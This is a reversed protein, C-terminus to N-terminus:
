RSVSGSSRASRSAARSSAPRSPSDRGASRRRKSRRHAVIAPQSAAGGSVAPRTATGFIGLVGDTDASPADAGAPEGDSCVLLRVIDPISSASADRRDVRDRLGGAGAAGPARPLSDDSALLAQRGDRAALMRTATAPSFRSVRPGGDRRVSERCRRAPSSTRSARFSTGRPAAARRVLRGRCSRACSSRCRSGASTTSCSRHRRSGRRHGTVGLGLGLVKNM